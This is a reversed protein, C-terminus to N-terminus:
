FESAVRFHARPHFRKSTAEDVFPLGVDVEATLFGWTELRAGLGASALWFRSKQEPLPENTELLAGDAFVLVRAERIWSKEPALSPSRAELILLGGYDGVVASELYGRVTDAGGASLQESSILPDWAYQGLVKAYLEVFRLERTVALDGRLVIFAATAKYRRDDWRVQSGSLPRINGTVSANATLDLPAGIAALPYQVSWPWYTLPVSFGKSGVKMDQGLKKYDVGLTVNHFV